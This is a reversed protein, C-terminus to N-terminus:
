PQRSAAQKSIMHNLAIKQLVVNLVFGIKQSMKGNQVPHFAMKLIAQSHTMFTAVFQASTSKM